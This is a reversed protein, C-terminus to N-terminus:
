KHQVHKKLILFTKRVYIQSFHIKKKKFDFFRTKLLICLLSFFHLTKEKTREELFLKRELRKKVDRM